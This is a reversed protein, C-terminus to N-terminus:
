VLHSPTPFPIITFFCCCTYALNWGSWLVSFRRDSRWVLRDSLMVKLGYNLWCVYHINNHHRRQQKEKQTYTIRWVRLLWVAKYSFHRVCVFHNSSGTTVTGLGELWRSEWGRFLSSLTLTQGHKLSRHEYHSEMSGLEERNDNIQYRTAPTPLRNAFATTVMFIVGSDTGVCLPCGSRDTSQFTKGM